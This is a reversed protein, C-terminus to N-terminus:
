IYSKKLSETNGANLKDEFEELKEAAEDIADADRDAGKFLLSNFHKQLVTYKKKLTRQQQKTTNKLNEIKEFIEITNEELEELKEAKIIMKSLSKEANKYKKYATTKESKNDYSIDNWQEQFKKVEEEKESIKEDLERKDRTIRMKRTHQRKKRNLSSEASIPTIINFSLSRSSPYLKRTKKFFGSV